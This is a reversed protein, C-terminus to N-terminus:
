QCLGLRLITKYERHFALYPMKVYFTGYNSIAIPITIPIPNEPNTKKKGM